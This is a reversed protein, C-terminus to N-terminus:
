QTELFNKIQQVYLQNSKIGPHRNDYNVDIINDFMSDYLNVWQSPDIGGGNKYQSHIKKYLKINDENSRSDSQLITKKTFSTFQETTIETGAENCVNIFYDQDWPCLGNIFYLKINLQQALNQLIKSYEVIKVIERHLHHMALLRDLLDDVYGRSWTDGAVKIDTKGRMSPQIGEATDWLELGADFKYRPMSTWQCFITDINSSFIGIARTTQEFIEANSSGSLSFNVLSLKWLQPIQYHCLNVWLGPYEKCPTRRSIKPDTKVWGTGATFSCGTFIVQKPM